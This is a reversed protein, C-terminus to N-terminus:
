QSLRRGRERDNRPEKLAPDISGCGASCTPVTRPGSLVTLPDIEINGYRRSKEHATSALPHTDRDVGFAAMCHQFKLGQIAMGKLVGIYEAASVVATLAQRLADGEADTM